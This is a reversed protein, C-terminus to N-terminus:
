AWKCACDDSCTPARKKARSFRLDSRLARRRALVGSCTTVVEATPPASVRTHRARCQKPPAPTVQPERSLLVRPLCEMLPCRSPTRHPCGKLLNLKARSPVYKIEVRSRAPRPPSHSAPSSLPRTDDGCLALRARHILPHGVPSRSSDGGARSGLCVCM